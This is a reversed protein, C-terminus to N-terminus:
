GYAERRGFGAGAAVLTLRKGLQCGHELRDILAPRQVIHAQFPPTYLMTALIQYTM